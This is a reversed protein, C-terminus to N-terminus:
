LTSYMFYDVCEKSIIKCYEVWCDKPFEYNQYATRNIIDATILAMPGDGEINYTAERLPKTVYIVVAMEVKIMALKLVDHDPDEKVLIKQLCKIRVGDPIKNQECTLKVWDM